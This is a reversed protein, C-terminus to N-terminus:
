ILWPGVLVGLCGWGLRFVLLSNGLSKYGGTRSIGRTHDWPFGLLMEVEDPELPAVKKKGVWVSEVQLM